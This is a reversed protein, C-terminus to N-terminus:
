LVGVFEIPKRYKDLIKDVLLNGTGEFV